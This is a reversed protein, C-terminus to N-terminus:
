GKERSQTTHRRDHQVRTCTDHPNRSPTACLPHAASAPTVARSLRAASSPTVGRLPRPAVCDHVALPGNGGQVGKATITSEVPAPAPEQVRQKQKRKAPPARRGGKGRVSFTINGACAGHGFSGSYDGDAEAPPRRRRGGHRLACGWAFRPSRLPTGGSRVCGLGGEGSPFTDRCNGHRIPPAGCTGRRPAGTARRSGRLGPAGETRRARSGIDSGGFSLGSLRLSKPSPKPCPAGATRGVSLDPFICSETGAGRGSSGSYGGDAEAPPRRRRGGHRLVCGWAFRPSRLPTGGSRM